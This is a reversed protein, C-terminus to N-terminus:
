PNRPTGAPLVVRFVAGRPHASAASLHGEHREIIM